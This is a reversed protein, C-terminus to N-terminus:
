DEGVIKLIHKYLKRSVFFGVEDILVNLVPKLEKIHGDQKARILVGLLGVIKLGFEEAIARGKREDIILYDAQYERALIIAEAEGEDLRNQLSKVANTDQVSQIIIWNQADIVPQQNEIQILEDYVKQPIIIEGFVINLLHLQRIQILNTIPSTDSIVVSTEPCATM